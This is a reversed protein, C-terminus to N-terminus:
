RPSACRPCDCLPHGSPHPTPTMRDDTATLRPRRQLHDLLELVDTMPPYHVACEPCAYVNFGPGSPAHVEHVLVPQDTTRQRRACMRLAPRTM